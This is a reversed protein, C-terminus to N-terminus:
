RLFSRECARVSRAVARRSSKRRSFGRNVSTDEVSEGIIKPSHELLRGGRTRKSGSTPGTEGVYTKKKKRDTRVNNSASQDRSGLVLGGQEKTIYRLDASPEARKWVGLSVVESWPKAM